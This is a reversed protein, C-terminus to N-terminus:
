ETVRKAFLYRDAWYKRDVDSINVGANSSQIMKGDGIYMSVHSVGSGDTDYFLLDGPQLESKSVRKGIKSQEKSTRPVDIGVKKYVYYILGSCDFSNPGIAGWLYPKDLEKRAYKIVLSINDSVPKIPLPETKVEEVRVPREFSLLSKKFKFYQDDIFVEYIGNEYNVIDVQEAFDFRHNNITIDDTVFAPTYITTTDMNEVLQKKLVWGELKSPSVVKVWEGSEEQNRTRHIREGSRLLQITDSFLSPEAYMSVREEVVSFSRGEEYATLLVVEKPVNFVGKESQIQYEDITEGIVKVKEGDQMQESSDTTTPYKEILVGKDAYAEEVAGFLFFISFGMLMIMFRFKM